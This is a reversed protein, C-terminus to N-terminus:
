QGGEFSSTDLIAPEESIDVGFYTRLKVYVPWDIYTPTCHPDYKDQYWVNALTGFDERVQAYFLVTYSTWLVVIASPHEAAWNHVYSLGSIAMSQAGHAGIGGYDIVLLDIGIDPIKLRYDAAMHVVEIPLKGYRRLCRDAFEADMLTNSGLPIDTLIVTRIGTRQRKM